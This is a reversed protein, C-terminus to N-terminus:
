QSKTKARAGSSWFRIMMSVSISGQGMDSGIAPDSPSRPEKETM